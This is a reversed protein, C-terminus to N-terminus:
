FNRRFSGRCTDQTMCRFTYHSTQTDRFPGPMEDGPQQLAAAQKWQGRDRERGRVAGCKISLNKAFWDNGERVYFATRSDFTAFTAFGSDGSSRKGLNPTM